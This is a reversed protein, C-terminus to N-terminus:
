QASCVSPFPRPNLAICPLIPTVISAGIELNVGFSCDCYGGFLPQAKICFISLLLADDIFFGGFDSVKFCWMCCSAPEPRNPEEDCRAVVEELVETLIRDVEARIQRENADKMDKTDSKSSSGGSDCDLDKHLSTESELNEILNNSM